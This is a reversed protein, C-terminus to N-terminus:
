SFESMDIFEKYPTSEGVSDIYIEMSRLDRAEIGEVISECIDAPTVVQRPFLEDDDLCRRSSRHKRANRRDLRDTLFRDERREMSRVIRIRYFDVDEDEDDIIDSMDHEIDCTVRKM